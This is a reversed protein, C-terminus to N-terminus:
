AVDALKVTVRGQFARHEVPVRDGHAGLSDVYALIAERINEEASELTDGQTHCGPLAPVSAVYGGDPDAEYFVTYSYTRDM